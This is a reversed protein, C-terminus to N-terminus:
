RMHGALEAFRQVPAMGVGRLVARLVNRRLYNHYRAALDDAPSARNDGSPERETVDASETPRAM